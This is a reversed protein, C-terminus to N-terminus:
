TWTYLRYWPADEGPPTEELCEFNSWDSWIVGWEGAIECGTLSVYLGRKTKTLLPRAAAAHGAGAASPGVLPGAADRIRM